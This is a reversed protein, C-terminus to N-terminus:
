FDRAVSPLPLSKQYWNFAVDEFGASNERKRNLKLYEKDDLANFDKIEPRTLHHLNITFQKLKAQAGGVRNKPFM